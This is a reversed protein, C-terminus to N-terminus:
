DGLEYEEIEGGDKLGQTFTEVFVEKLLETETAVYQVLTQNWDKSPPLHVDVVFVPTNYKEYYRTTAERGWQDNDLCFVIRSINPHNIYYKQLASDALSGLSVMHDEPEIGYMKMLTYYSMLDIASEFVRVTDTKGELSFSYSKDSNAVDGKFDKGLTNTSRVSAYKAEGHEDYGVFVVSRKDNEYIKKEKVLQYVLDKDIKRHQILYAFLHKFTNNKDPLVFAGKIEPAPHEVKKGIQYNPDKNLEVLQRVAQGWSKQEMHMVFQIPGGGQGVSHHKWSNKSPSITLGGYGPIRYEDRGTKELPYGSRQVYEMLNISNAMEVRKKHEVENFKM